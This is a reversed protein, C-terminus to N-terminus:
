TPRRREPLLQKAVRTALDVAGRVDISEVPEFGHAVASRVGYLNILDQYSDRDLTGNSVLERMLTWTDPRRAEIADREAALRMAAEVAAWALLVAGEHHATEGLAKADRIMKQVKSASLLQLRQGPLVSERPRPAVLVLRWGPRGEVRRAIAKIRERDRETAAQKVEIILSEDGSRAIIDPRLERIFEPMGQQIDYAFRQSPPVLAACAALV